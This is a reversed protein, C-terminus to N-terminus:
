SHIATFSIVPRPLNDLESHTAHIEKTHLKQM